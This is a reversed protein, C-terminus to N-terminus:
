VEFTPAASLTAEKEGLISERGRVALSDYRWAPGNYTRLAHGKMDKGLLHFFKKGRDMMKGKLTSEWNPIYSVPVVPLETILREGAFYPIHHFVPSLGLTASGDFDLRLGKITFRLLKSNFRVDRCIWCETFNQSTVLLLEDPPYITWLISGNIRGEATNQEYLKIDDALAGKQDTIVNQLLQMEARIESPQIPDDLFAKIGHRAFFVECFPTRIKITNAYLDTGDYGTKQIERFATRLTKSQIKLTTDLILLVGDPREQVQRELVLSYDQYKKKEKLNKNPAQSIRETLYIEKTTGRLGQREIETIDAFKRQVTQNDSKTATQSGGQIDTAASPQRGNKEDQPSPNSSDKRKQPDTKEGEFHNPLIRAYAPLSGPALNNSTSM